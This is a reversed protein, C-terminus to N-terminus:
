SKNQRYGCGMFTQEQTYPVSQQHWMCLFHQNTTFQLLRPRRVREKATAMKKCWEEGVEALRAQLTIVEQHHDEALQQM